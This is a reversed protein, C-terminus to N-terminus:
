AIQFHRRVKDTLTDLEADSLAGVIIYLHGGADWAVANMGHGPDYRTPPSKPQDSPTICLAIPQRDPSTYLLEAIPKDAEALLRGGEFAWGEGTLNPVTLTRGIRSGLWEEIHDKCSAPVEALHETEQAYVSHYAAVDAMFDARDAGGRTIIFGVGALFVIVAAAAAVSGTWSPRPLYDKKPRVQLHVVNDAQEPESFALRLLVATDRFVKVKSQAEADRAILSEVQRRTEESLEGDVYAVLIEDTLHIM